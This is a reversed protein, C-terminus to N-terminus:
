FVEALDRTLVGFYVGYFICLTAFVRCWVILWPEAHLVYYNMRQQQQLLQQQQHHHPDNLDISSPPPPLFNENAENAEHTGTLQEFTYPVKLGWADPSLKVLFLVPNMGNLDFLAFVYGFVVMHYSLQISGCVRM